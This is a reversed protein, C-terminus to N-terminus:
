FGMESLKERKRDTLRPIVVNGMIQKGLYHLVSINVQLGSTYYGEENAYAQMKFGAVSELPGGVANVLEQYEQKSDYEFEEFSGDQGIILATHTAM